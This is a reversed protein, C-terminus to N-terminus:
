FSRGKELTPAGPVTARREVEQLRRLTWREYEPLLRLVVRNAGADGLRTSSNM